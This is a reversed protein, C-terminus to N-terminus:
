GNILPRGELAEIASRVEDPVPTPKQLNYDFTVLTSDGDAVAARHQASVVRHEMVMSTRGISAIRAGIHVTEPFKLQRRFNCKVAALIPGIKKTEMLQSLGIKDGYAIRASEFWRLYVVNNVHAFADQDGWQVPLSIFVPFGALHKALEPDVIDVEKSNTRFLM